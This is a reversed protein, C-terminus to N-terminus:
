PTQHPKSRKFTLQKGNSLRVIPSGDETYGEVYGTYTVGDEDEVEVKASLIQSKPIILDSM